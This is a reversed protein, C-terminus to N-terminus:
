GCHCGNQGGIFFCTAQKYVNYPCTASLTACTAPDTAHDCGYFGGRVRSLEDESVERLLSKVNIKKM